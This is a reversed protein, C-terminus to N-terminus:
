EKVAEGYIEELEKTISSWSFTKEILERGNKRIKEYLIENQLLVVVAKALDEDNEGILVEKEHHAGVGKAGLHTTVVPVGSSLAEIIKYSSGGGVSLPALLIDSKQYIKYTEAPAHDDPFITDSAYAKLSDPMNKGVIWLKPRFGLKEKEILKVVLPWISDLIRQIAQLNQVWKYDGMFLITREKKDSIGKTKLKFTAVDVGNSVLRVDPRVKEIVQKDSASVAAIMSAKKWFNREWYAIKIVDVLLLPKLFMTATKAYKKYVDYEINHETLVIPLYTKPLNQFVYFTEVHIVDFRKNNLTQVIKQKMDPLTHGILLFPYFSCGSMLINHWSWQKKRPVTIIESCFKKVEKIDHEDQYDRIECILTISNKKSLEKILNYLRVNGGNVLPFPLYSSVLLINM